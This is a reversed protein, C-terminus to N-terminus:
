GDGMHKIQQQMIMGQQQQRNGQQQMQSQESLQGFNTNFMAQQLVKQGQQKQMMIYGQRIRASRAMGSITESIDLVSYEDIDLEIVMERYVQVPDDDVVHFDSKVNQTQGEVPLTVILGM